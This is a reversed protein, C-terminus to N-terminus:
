EFRYVRVKEIEVGQPSFRWFKGQDNEDGNLRRGATWNGDTFTGEEVYGVGAHPAGSSRPVFSVRFGSGAGIFENPSTAIILGYGQKARSGFIEDLTINLQYGNIDVIISPNTQDLLFGTMSDAGEHSAILPALEVLIHYSIGLDNNSDNWSDIGFPSFGIAGNGFAYFANM